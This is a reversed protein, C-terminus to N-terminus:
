RATWGGDIVITQGTINRAAHSSLFEIAAAVEEATLVSRGVEPPWVQARRSRDVSKKEEKETDSYRQLTPLM